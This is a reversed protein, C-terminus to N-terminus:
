FEPEAAEEPGRQQEDLRRMAELLLFGTPKRILPGQQGVDGVSGYRIRFFGNTHQLVAYFADEGWSEPTNSATNNPTSAALSAARYSAHRVQGEIVALQGREGTIAAVDILATRRGMELGQLIEPLSMQKLTGVVGDDSGAFPNIGATPVPAPANRKSSSSLTHVANLTRRLKALAIDPPVSYTWVDDAGWDLAQATLAADTSPGIVFFPIVEDREQARKRIRLLFDRYQLPKVDHSCLIADARQVQFFAWAEDSSAFRELAFGEQLLRACLADLPFDAECVVITHTPPTPSTLHAGSIDIHSNGNPNSHTNVTSTLQLANYATHIAAQLDTKTAIHLVVRQAQAASRTEEIDDQAFPDVAAIHLTQSEIYLPLIRRAIAFSHPIRQCLTTNPLHQLLEAQTWYDTDSSQALVLALTFESIVQQNVLIDILKGGHIRQEEEAAALQTPTIMEATLLATAAPDPANIKSALIYSAAVREQLSIEQASIAVLATDALLPPRRIHIPDLVPLHGDSEAEEQLYVVAPPAPPTATVVPITPIIPTNTTQLAPLDVPPPVSAPPPEIELASQIAAHINRMAQAAPVAQSVADTPPPVHFAPGLVAATAAVAAMSHPTPSPPDLLAAMSPMAPPTPIAIRPQQAVPPTIPAAPRQSRQREISRFTRGALDIWPQRESRFHLSQAIEDIKQRFDDARLLRVDVGIGLARRIAKELPLPLSPRENNGAGGVSGASGGVRTLPLLDYVMAAAGVVDWGIDYPTPPLTRAFATGTLWIKGDGDIRIHRLSVDGHALPVAHLAQLCSLVDRLVVLIGDLSLVVRRERLSAALETLDYGAIWPWAIYHIGEAQGREVPLLLHQRLDARASGIADCRAGLASLQAPTLADFCQLFVPEDSRESVARYCRAVTNRGLDELLTFDAFRSM